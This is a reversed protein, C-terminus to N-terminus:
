ASQVQTWYENWKEPCEPTAFQTLESFVDTRNQFYIEAERDSWMDRLDVAPAGGTDEAMMKMWNKELRWNMFAYVANKKAESEVGSTMMWAELWGLGGEEPRLVHQIPEGELALRRYTDSYEPFLWLDGAKYLRDLNRSDSYRTILYPKQQILLDAVEQLQEDGCTEWVSGKPDNHGLALSSNAINMTQRASTAMHGSYKENYLSSMFSNVDSEDVKDPHYSIGYGGWANPPGLYNGDAVHLNLNDPHFAPFVNELNLRDRDVPQILDDAYYQQPWFSDAMVVDYEQAGGTRLQNYAEANGDFYSAQISVGYEERFPRNIEDMDYYPWMLMRLTDAYEQKARTVGAVGALSIVGASKLFRRRSSGGTDPSVEEIGPSKRQTM